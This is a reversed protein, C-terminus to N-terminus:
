PNLAPQSGVKLLKSTNEIYNHKITNSGSLIATDKPTHMQKPSHPIYKTLEKTAIISSM